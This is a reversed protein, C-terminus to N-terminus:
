QKGDTGAIPGAGSFKSAVSYVSSERVCFCLLGMFDPVRCPEGDLWGLSRKRASDLREGWGLCTVGDWKGWLNWKEGRWRGVEGAKTEQNEVALPLFCAGPM